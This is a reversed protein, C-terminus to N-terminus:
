RVHVVDVFVGLVRLPRPMKGHRPRILPGVGLLEYGELQGSRPGLPRRPGDDQFALYDPRQIKVVQIVLSKGGRKAVRDGACAPRLPNAVSAASATM